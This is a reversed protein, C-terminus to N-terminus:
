SRSVSIKRLVTLLWATNTGSAHVRLVLNGLNDFSDQTEYQGETVKVDADNRVAELSQLQATLDNEDENCRDTLQQLTLTSSYHRTIPM